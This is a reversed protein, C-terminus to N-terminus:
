VRKTVPQKPFDFPLKVETGFLWVQKKRAVTVIGVAKEPAEPLLTHLGSAALNLGAATLFVIIVLSVIWKM